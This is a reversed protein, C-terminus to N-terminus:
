PLYASNAIRARERQLRRLRADSEIKTDAGGETTPMMGMERSAQVVWQRQQRNGVMYSKLLHTGYEDRYRRITNRADDLSQFNTDAFIGPGTSFIRPSPTEGLEALDANAFIDPTTQPDRITTVGFALNAYPQPAEPELLESRLAGWYSHIDVIGPIITKGSTDMVRAQPLITVSGREGIATIRNGTVVIDAHEIVASGRMTIARADSLVVIGSPIARPLSATLQVTRESAGAAIGIEHLLSGTIWHVSSGDPSWGLGTPNGGAPIANRSADLLDTATLDFLALREGALM